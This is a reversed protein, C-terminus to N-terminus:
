SRSARGSGALTVTREVGGRGEDILSPAVQSRSLIWTEHAVVYGLNEYLRQGSPTAELLLTIVGARWATCM